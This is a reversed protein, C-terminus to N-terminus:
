KGLFARMAPYIETVREQVLLQYYQEIIGITLLIGTGSGFAGLFDAGAAIAGILIGGVVTVTPIYRQLVQRIPVTSRRFGEIQMGSDLLQKAVQAADMGSVEVWTMAFFACTIILLTAYLAARVPDAMVGALNRPPM